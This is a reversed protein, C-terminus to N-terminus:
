RIAQVLVDICAVAVKPVKHKFGAILNEQM